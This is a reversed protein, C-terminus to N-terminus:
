SHGGEINLIDIGREGVGRVAAAAAAAGVETKATQTFTLARLCKGPTEFVCFCMKKAKRLFQRKTNRWNECM